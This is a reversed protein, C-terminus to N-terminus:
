DELPIDKLDKFKGVSANRKQKVVRKIKNIYNSLRHRKTHQTPIVGVWEAPVEVKKGRRIRFVKGDEIIAKM